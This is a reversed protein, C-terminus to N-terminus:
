FSLPGFEMAGPDNRKQKSLLSHEQKQRDNAEFPISSRRIMIDIYFQDSECYIACQYHQYKIPNRTDIFWAAGFGLSCSVILAVFYGVDNDIM